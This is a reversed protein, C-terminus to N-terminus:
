ITTNAHLNGIASKILRPVQMDEKNCMSQSVCDTIRDLWVLNVQELPQTSLRYELEKIWHSQIEKNSDISAMINGFLGSTTNERLSTVRNFHELAARYNIDPDGIGRELRQGYVKGAEYNARPSYPHYQVESLYLRVNDSWSWARFHTQLALLLIFTTMVSFRIILYKNPEFGYGLYYFLPLLLGISPLYNRHEFALELPIFSSEVLHGTFFFLLGFALIPAPKLSIIVVLLLGAVGAISFITSIPATLSTSVAIDDHFLGFVSPSPLIIMRIYLWLVRPETLLRETMSFHRNSYGAQFM